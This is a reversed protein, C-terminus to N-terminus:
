KFTLFLTKALIRDDSNNDSIEMEKIKYGILYALNYSQFSEGNYITIYGNSFYYKTGTDSLITGAETTGDKHAWVRKLKNDSLVKKLQEETLQEATPM